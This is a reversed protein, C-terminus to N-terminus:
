RVQIFKVNSLIEASLEIAQSFGNEGGYSVDVVNLVKVQVGDESSPCSHFPTRQLSQGRRKGCRAARKLHPFISRPIFDQFSSASVSQSIGIKQSKKAGNHDRRETEM